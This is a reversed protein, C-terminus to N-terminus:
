HRSAPTGCNEAIAQLIEEDSRQRDMSNVKAWKVRGDKGVVVTARAAVGENELYIGYAAAVRGKPHFDSLLPYSLGGLKEVFAQHCPLSDM